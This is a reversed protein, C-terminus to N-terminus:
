SGEWLCDVVQSLSFEGDKHLDRPFARGTAM